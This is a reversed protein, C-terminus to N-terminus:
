MAYDLAVRGDRNIKMFEIGFWVFCAAQPIAWFLFAMWARTRLTFRRNDLILRGYVM